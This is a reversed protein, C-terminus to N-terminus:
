NPIVVVSDFSQVSTVAHVCHTTNKLIHFCESRRGADMVKIGLKHM